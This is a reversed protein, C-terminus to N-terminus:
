PLTCQHLYSSGSFLSSRQHRWFHKYRWAFLRHSFLRDHITCIFLCIYTCARDISKHFGSPVGNQISFRHNGFSFVGMPPICVVALFFSSSTTFSTHFHQHMCSISTRYWIYFCANSYHNHTCSVCM